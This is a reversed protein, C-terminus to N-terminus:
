TTATTSNIIHLCIMWWHWLPSQPTVSKNARYIIILFVNRVLSYILVCLFPHTSNRIRRRRWWCCCGLSWSRYIHHRPVHRCLWRASNFSLKRLMWDYKMIQLSRPLNASCNGLTLNMPRVHCPVPLRRRCPISFVKRRFLTQFLLQPHTVVTWWDDFWKPSLQKGPDKETINMGRKGTGIAESNWWFSGLCKEMLRAIREVMKYDWKCRCCLVLWSRLTSVSYFHLM